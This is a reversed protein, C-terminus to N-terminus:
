FEFALQASVLDRKEAPVDAANKLAFDRDFEGRLYELSLSLHERIGWSACLGYQHEPAEFFERSGEYRLALELNEKPDVALELNWSRPRDGRGDSDIDLDAPSFRSLAETLEGSLEVIGLRAIAYASWAGVRRSYLDGVLEADTDALDSVFSAGFELDEMPKFTLAAGFDRLHSESSDKEADGNFAFVSVSVLGRDYGAVLATEQAEGLAQTLPDSIFHAFYVGFPIYLRGVRGSWSGSAYSLYAEDLTVNDDNAGQEYLFTLDGRLEPIVEVGLGLQATGLRLDSSSETGDGRYRLGEAFADVEILGSISLRETLASSLGAEKKEDLRHYLEAGQKEPDAWALQSEEHALACLPLLSLLLAVVFQM